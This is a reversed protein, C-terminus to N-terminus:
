CCGGGDHHPKFIAFYKRYEPFQFLIRWLNMVFEDYNGEKLIVNDNEVGMVTVAISLLSM